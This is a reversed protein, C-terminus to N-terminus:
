SRRSHRGRPHAQVLLGLALLVTVATLAVPARPGTAEAVAGAILVTGGQVVMLCTSAIGYARGRLHAPVAAVFAANAVVQLAGGVGALVWLAALVTISDVFPTLLLPVSALVALRPLMPMRRASPVRLLLWTGLVFGAPITATLVGAAVPGRGLEAAIAVALGEPAILVAMTLAAYALLRRLEPSRFVLAAGERMETRVGTRETLAAPRRRVALLLVVASVAFTAADVGLAGRAGLTAVLAGGILFGLVQGAQAFANMLANATVYEEGTMVDALLASRAAEFPPTLLGVGALALFFGWLPLGPLCMVLVLLLRALDGVVMVERRPYRDSLTSLVPGGVLWTLFSCAYTAASAFASGTRDYVLLAVAIRAVQDGLISLIDSLFMARFERVALVQRYTVRPEDTM